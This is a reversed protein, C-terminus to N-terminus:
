PCDPSAMSAHIEGVRPNLAAHEKANRGEAGRVWAGLYYLAAKSTTNGEM